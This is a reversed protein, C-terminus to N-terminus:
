CSGVATDLCKHTVSCHRSISAAHCHKHVKQQQHWQEREEETMGELMRGIEARKHELAKQKQEKEAAKKAKKNEEQRCVSLALYQVSLLLLLLLVAAPFGTHATFCPLLV